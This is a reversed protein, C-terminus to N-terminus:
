VSRGETGEDTVATRSMVDAGGGGWSQSTRERDMEGFTLVHLRIIVSCAILGVPLAFQSERKAFRTKRISIQMETAHELTM